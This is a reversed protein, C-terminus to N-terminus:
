AISTFPKAGAIPPPGSTIRFPRCGNSVEGGESPLSTTGNSRARAGSSNVTSTEPGFVPPFVTSMLATPSSQRIACLPMMGGIPGCEVSGAKVVQNASMPSRWDMAWLREVKEARRGVHERLRLAREGVGLPREVRQEGRHLLAGAIELVAGLGERCGLLPEGLLTPRQFCPLPVQGVPLPVDRRPRPRELAFRPVLGAAIQELRALGHLLRERLRARRYVFGRRSFGAPEQFLCDLFRRPFFGM